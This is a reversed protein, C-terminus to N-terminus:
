TTGLAGLIVDLDDRTLGSNEDIEDGPNWSRAFVQLRGAADALGPAGESAQSGSGAMAYDIPRETM